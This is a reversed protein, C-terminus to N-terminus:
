NLRWIYVNLDFLHLSVFGIAIAYIANTTDPTLDPAQQYWFDRELVDSDQLHVTNQPPQCIIYAFLHGPGWVGKDCTTVIRGGGGKHTRLALTM